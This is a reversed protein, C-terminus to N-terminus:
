FVPEDLDRKRKGERAVVNVFSLDFAGRIYALFSVRM